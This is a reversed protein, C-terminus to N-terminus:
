VMAAQRVPELTIDFQMRYLARGAEGKPDLVFKRLLEPKVGFIADSELYPSDDPFVQTVLTQYGPASVKYHIHAPRFPHRGTARLFDGGPGDDPIPYAVPRVTRFEYRGDPDILFRARLDGKSRAPDNVDYLGNAGAQWVDVIAGPIPEGKENTVRGSVIARDGPEDARAISAGSLKVEPDETYFPGLVSSETGGMMKRNSFNDVITSLGLVDSMLIFENRPGRCWEGCATLFKIAGIWEDETLETEIAFAHLHRILSNLLQKLRPDPTGDIARLAERTVAENDM